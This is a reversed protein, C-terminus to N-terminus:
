LLYKLAFGFEVFRPWSGEPTDWLLEYRYLRQGTPTTGVEIPVVPRYSIGAAVVLHRSLAPVGFLLDFRPAVLNAVLKSTGEYEIDPTRRAALESLPALGDVLSIQGAFYSLERRRAWLRFNLWNLSAVTRFSGTSDNVYAANWSFRVALDPLFVCEVYRRDFGGGQSIEHVVDVAASRFAARTAASPSKEDAADLAYIVVAGAFRRYLAVRKCRAVEGSTGAPCKEEDAVGSFLSQIALHAVEQADGRSALRVIPWLRQGTTLLTSQRRVQDCTPTEVGDCLAGVYGGAAGFADLFTAVDLKQTFGSTAVKWQTRLREVDLLAPKLLAASTDFAPALAELLEDVSVKEKGDKYIFDRIAVITAEVKAVDLKATVGKAAVEAIVLAAAQVLQEEAQAAKGQLVARLSLAVRCAYAKEVVSASAACAEDLPHVLGRRVSDSALEDQVQEFCAKQREPGFPKYIIAGADTQQAETEAGGALKEARMDATPSSTGRVLADYVVFAALDASEELLTTRLSGFQRRFVRQLSRPYFRLLELDWAEDEPPDASSFAGKKFTVDAPAKTEERRRRHGGLCALNPAVTRAVEATLLDEIVSKADAYLADPVQAEARGPMGLLTAVAAFLALRRFVHRM